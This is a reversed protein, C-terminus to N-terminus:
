GVSVTVKKTAVVKKGITFKVTYTGPKALKGIRYLITRDAAVKLNRKKLLKKGLRLEVTVKAGPRAKPVVAVLKVITEPTALSTAPSAVSTEPSQPNLTVVTRGNIFTCQTVTPCDPKGGGPWPTPKTLEPNKPDFTILHSQRSRANGSLSIATCQNTSPCSLEFLGAAGTDQVRPIIAAPPRHDAPRAPDFTIVFGPKDTVTCQTASPCDIGGLGYFDDSLRTVTVDAPTAPNFTRVEHQTMAACLRATPCDIGLLHYQDDPPASRDQTTPTGAPANPDFTLVRGQFDFATCQSPTPCSIGQFAAGEPNPDEFNALARPGTDATPDLTAVQLYRQSGAFDGGAATCQTRTSCFIDQIFGLTLTTTGLVGGSTPDFRVAAGSKRPSAQTELAAVCETSSACSLGVAQGPVQFQEVKTAAQAPAAGVMVAVVTALTVWSGRLRADRIRAAAEIRM